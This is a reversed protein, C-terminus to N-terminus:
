KAAYNKAYFGTKDIESFGHKNFIKIMLRKIAGDEDPYDVWEGKLDPCQPKPYTVLSHVKINFCFLLIEELNNLIYNALGRNRYKPYVYFREIYGSHLSMIVKDENLEQNYMQSEVLFSMASETDSDFMDAVDIASFDNDYMGDEDFFIGKFEALIENTEANQFSFGGQFAYKEDIDLAEEFSSNRDVVCVENKSSWSKLIM